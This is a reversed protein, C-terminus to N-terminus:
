APDFKPPCAVGGRTIFLILLGCFWVVGPGSMLIEFSPKFLYQLAGLAMFGAGSFYGFTVIGPFEKVKKQLVRDEFNRPDQLLAFLRDFLM